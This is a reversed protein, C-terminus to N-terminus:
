FWFLSSFFRDFPQACTIPHVPSLSFVCCPLNLILKNPLICHEFLEPKTSQQSNDLIQRSVCCTHTHTHIMRSMRYHGFFHIFLLELSHFHFVTARLGFIQFPKQKKFITDSSLKGKCMIIDTLNPLFNFVNNRVIRRSLDFGSECTQNLFHISLQSIRFAINFFYDSLRIFSLSCSPALAHTHSNHTSALLCWGLLLLPLFSHRAVSKFTRCLGFIAFYLLGFLPLFTFFAGLLVVKSEFLPVYDSLRSIAVSIVTSPSDVLTFVLWYFTFRGFAFFFTAADNKVASALPCLFFFFLLFFFLTFVSTCISKSLSVSLLFSFFQTDGDDGFWFFLWSHNRHPRVIFSRVWIVSPWPAIPSFYIWVCVCNAFLFIVEDIDFLRVVDFHVTIQSFLLNSNPGLEFILIFDFTLWFRSRRNLFRLLFAISDILILRDFYVTFPSYLDYGIFRVFRILLEHYYTM